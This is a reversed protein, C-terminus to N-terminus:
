TGMDREPLGVGSVAAKASGEVWSSFTQVASPFTAGRGLVPSPPPPTPLLRCVEFSCSCYAKLFIIIFTGSCWCQEM